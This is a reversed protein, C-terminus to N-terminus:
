SVKKLLDIGVHLMIIGNVILTPAFIEANYHGVIMCILGVITLAAFLLEEIMLNLM